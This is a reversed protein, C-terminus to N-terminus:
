DIAVKEKECFCNDNKHPWLVRTCLMTDPQRKECLPKRYLKGPTLLGVCQALEESIGNLYMLDDGTVM